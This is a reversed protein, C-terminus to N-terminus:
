VTNLEFQEQIVSIFIWAQKLLFKHEDEFAKYGYEVYLDLWFNKHLIWKSLVTWGNNGYDYGVKHIGQKYDGYYYPDYLYGSGYGHPYYAPYAYYPDYTSYSGYYPRYGYGYASGHGQYPKFGVSSVYTPKSTSYSPKYYITSGLGYRNRTYDYGYDLSAGISGAWATASIFLVLLIQFFIFFMFDIM